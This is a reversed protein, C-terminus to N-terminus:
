PGGSRPSIGAPRRGRTSRQRALSGAWRGVAPSTSSAAFAPRGAGPQSGPGAKPASASPVSASPASAGAPGASGGLRGDPRRQHRGSVAAPTVDPMSAADTATLKASPAAPGREGAAPSVGRAAAEGVSVVAGGAGATGPVRGAAVGRTLEGARPGRAAMMGATAAAPVGRGPRGDGEVAGEVVEAVADGGADDGGADGDGEGDRVTEGDGVADEDGVGPSDGDGVGAGSVVPEAVYRSPVM